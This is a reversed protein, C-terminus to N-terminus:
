KLKQNYFKIFIKEIESSSKFEPGKLLNLVYQDDKSVFDHLEELIKSSEYQDFILLIFEKLLFENERTGRYSGKYLIAKKLNELNLNM